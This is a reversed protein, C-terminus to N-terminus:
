GPLTATSVQLSGGRSVFPHEKVLEVASDLDPAQLISYGNAPGDAPGDSVSGVTVTKAPGLPAGPDILAEGASSAWAMFAAMAERAQEPAPAGAGHYTVLFKPMAIVEELWGRVQGGGAASLDMRVPTCPAPLTQDSM